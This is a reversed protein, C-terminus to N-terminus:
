HDDLAVASSRGGGGGKRGNRSLGVSRGVSISQCYDHEMLFVVPIPPSPSPLTLPLTALPRIESSSTTSQAVHLIRSAEDWRQSGECFMAVNLLFERTGCFYIYIGVGDM